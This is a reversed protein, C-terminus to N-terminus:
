SGASSLFKRIADRARDILAVMPGVVLNGAASTPSTPHPHTPATAEAARFAQALRRLRDEDAAQRILPHEDQEEREAHMLVEGELQELKADFQPDGVGMGELESLAVEAEKEEKLRQESVPEGGNSKRTLPHVVEQEATEHVALKRVLRGFSEEKAKADAAGSVQAFLQKIEAHDELVAAILDDNM